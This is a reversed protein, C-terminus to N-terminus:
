ERPIDGANATMFAKLSQEPVTPLLFRISGDAMLVNTGAFETNLRSAIPGANMDFDDPKTWPVGQAATVVLITNSTGDTIDAVTMGAAFAPGVNKGRRLVNPHNIDFASSNGTVALYHTIGDATPEKGPRLYTKPMLPILAKNHPSDWPEDLKFQKFLPDQEIFPLIAVRWSLGPNGNRDRYAAPQPFAGYVDHVNHLAIGIQMLNNKEHARAAATRVSSIAPFLIGAICGGVVLFGGAIIAIVLWVSWGKPTPRNAPHGYRGQRGDDARRDDYDDRRRDPSPPPPPPQDRFSPIPIIAGCAPCQAQQGANAESAQLM